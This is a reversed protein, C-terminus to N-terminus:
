KKKKKKKFRKHLKDIQETIVGEAIAGVKKLEAQVKENELLKEVKNSKILKHIVGYYLLGKLLRKKRRQWILIYLGLIVILIPWWDWITVSLVGLNTLLALAGIIILLTPIFICKHHHFM